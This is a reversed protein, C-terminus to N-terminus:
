RRATGGARASSDMSRPGSGRAASCRSPLRRPRRAWCGSIAHSGSRRRHARSARRWSSRRPLCAVSFSSATRNPKPPKWRSTSRRMRTPSSRRRGRRRRARIARSTSGFLGDADDITEPAALLEDHLSELSHHVEVMGQEVWDTEFPKEIPRPNSWGFMDDRRGEPLTEAFSRFGPIVDCRNILVHVPLRMGLVRRTKDLFAKILEAQEALDEPSRRRSGVLDACSLTVVIGNLPSDPRERRLLHLLNNWGESTDVNLAATAATSDSPAPAKLAPKVTPAEVVIADEFLWWRGADKKSSDVEIPPGYPLPLGTSSLLSRKGSNETGVLMFWPMALRDIGGAERVGSRTQLSRDLSDKLALMRSKRADGGALETTTDAHAGSMRVTSGGDEEDDDEEDDRFYSYVAFALFILGGLVVMILPGKDKIFDMM